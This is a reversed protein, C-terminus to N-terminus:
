GAVPAAAPETSETSEPKPAAETATPMLKFETAVEKVVDRIRDAVVIGYGTADDPGPTEVDQASRRLVEKVMRTDFKRGTLEEAAQEINAIMGAALPAAMSTGSMEGYGGGPLTSNIDQGPMAIFPVPEGNEVPLPNPGRSSFSTAKDNRDTAGVTIIHPNSAPSGITGRGSEGDNGAAFVNVIGMADMNRLAHMYSVSTGDNSGWSNNIIDPGLAVMRAPKGQPTPVRPAVMNQFASLLMGDTGGDPGLGRAAVFKVDPAIGTQKGNFKGGITGGVHTGHDNADVPVPSKEGTADFWNGTHVMEGTDPDYGRYQSMIAPHTFDTGTDVVGVTVNKGTLGQSRAKDVGVRTLNWQPDNALDVKGEAPKATAGGSHGVDIPLDNLLESAGSVADEIGALVEKHRNPDDLVHTASKIAQAVGAHSSMTTMATEDGYVVIANQIWLPQYGRRASVHGSAQLGDLTKWLPAQTKTTNDILTKAVFQRREVGMPMTFAQEVERTAQDDLVLVFEQFKAEEKAIQKLEAKTPPTAPQAPAQADLKSAVYSAATPTVPKVTTM